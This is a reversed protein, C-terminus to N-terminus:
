ILSRTLHGTGSTLTIIQVRSETKVEGGNHYPCKEYGLAPNYIICFLIMIIDIGGSDSYECTYREDVCLMRTTAVM